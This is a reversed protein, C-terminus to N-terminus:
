RRRSGADALGDGRAEGGLARADDDGVEVELLRLRGGGFQAVGVDRDPHLHVHGIM